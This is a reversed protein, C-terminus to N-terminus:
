EEEPTLKAYWENVSNREREASDESSAEVQQNAQVKYLEKFDGPIGEGDRGQLEKLNGDDAKMGKKEMELKRRRREDKKKKNIAM